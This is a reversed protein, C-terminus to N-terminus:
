QIKLLLLTNHRRRKRTSLHFLRTNTGGEQLWSIRSKLKSFHEELKLIENYQAILDTELNQLFHSTLFKTNGSAKSVSKKKYFINEFTTQNWEQLHNTFDQVAM